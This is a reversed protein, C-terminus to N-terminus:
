CYFLRPRINKKMAPLQYWKRRASGLHQRSQKNLHVGKERFKIILGKAEASLCYSAVPLGIFTQLVLLLTVFVSITELKKADAAHQMIITAIIGGSIPGTSGVALGQGIIPSAIFYLFASAAIIASLAIIVTKWENKLDEMKMMTGMYVLLMPIIAYAFDLIHADEFLTKPLITWFGFLFVLGAVFMMSLLAKTKTSIFDGLGLVLAIILLALTTEM